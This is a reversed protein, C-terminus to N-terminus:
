EIVCLVEGHGDLGSLRIEEIGDVNTGESALIDPELSVIDGDDLDVADKGVLCFGFHDVEPGCLSAAEEDRGFIVCGRVIRKNGAHVCYSVRM